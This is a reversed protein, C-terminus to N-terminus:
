WMFLRFTMMYNYIWNIGWKVRGAVLISNKHFEPNSYYDNLIHEIIRPLVEGLVILIIFCQLYTMLFTRLEKKM